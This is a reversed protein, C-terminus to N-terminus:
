EDELEKIKKDIIQQVDSLAQNYGCNIYKKAKVHDPDNKETGTLVPLDRGQRYALNKKNPLKIDRLAGALLREADSIPMVLECECDGEVLVPPVDCDPCPNQYKDHPCHLAWWTAGCFQCVIQHHYHEDIKSM